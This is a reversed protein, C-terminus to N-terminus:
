YSRVWGTCIKAKREPDQMESLAKQRNVEKQEESNYFWQKKQIMKDKYEVSAWM